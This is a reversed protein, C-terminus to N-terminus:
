SRPEKSSAAIDLPLCHRLSGDPCVVVCASENRGYFAVGRASFGRDALISAQEIAGVSFSPPLAVMAEKQRTYFWERIRMAVIAPDCRAGAPVCAAILAEAVTDDGPVADSRLAEVGPM